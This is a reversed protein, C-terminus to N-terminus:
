RASRGVGASRRDDHGAPTHLPDSDVCRVYMHTPPHTPHKPSPRLISLGLLRPHTPSTPSPSPPCCFFTTACRHLHVPPGSGGVGGMMCLCSVTLSRSLGPCLGCGPFPSSISTPNQPKGRESEQLRSAPGLEGAQTCGIPCPFNPTHADHATPHHLHPHM